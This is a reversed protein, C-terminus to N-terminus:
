RRSKLIDTWTMPGVIGDIVLANKKQYAKVAALTKPGFKNDIAGVNHGSAKLRKQLVGVFESESGKKLLPLFTSIVRQANPKAQTWYRGNNSGVHIWSQGDAYRYCGIARCGLAQATMAVELADYESGDANLVDIDAAEGSMHRSNYAGGIRSNYSRTRFGSGIRVRLRFTNRITQLISILEDAVLIGDSGDRCAFEKVKFNDSLRKEGDRKLSYSRIM